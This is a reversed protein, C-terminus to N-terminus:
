RRAKKTLDAAVKADRRARLEDVADAHGAGPPVAPTSGLAAAAVTRLERSLAAVGASTHAASMRAALALVLQGLATDLAGAAELERRAANVLPSASSEVSPALIAGRSKRVRCLDSCFRSRATKAEYERDCTDCHRKRLM